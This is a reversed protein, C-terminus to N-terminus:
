FRQSRMRIYPFCTTSHAKAGHSDTSWTLSDPKGAREAYNLLKAPESSTSKLAFGDRRLMRFPLYITLVSWSPRSHATLVLPFAKLIKDIVAERVKSKIDGSEKELSVSIAAQRQTITQRFRNEIDIRRNEWAEYEGQFRTGLKTNHMM